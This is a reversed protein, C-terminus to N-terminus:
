DEVENPIPLGETIPIPKRRFRFHVDKYNYGVRKDGTNLKDMWEHEKKRESVNNITDLIYCNFDCGYENADTQMLENDHRGRKLAILHAYLRENLNQTKGVYIRGTVKHQIAYVTKPYDDAWNM